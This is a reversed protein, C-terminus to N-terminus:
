LPNDPHPSFWDYWNKKFNLSSSTIQGDIQSERVRNCTPINQLAWLEAASNGRLAQKREESGCLASVIDTVFDAGDHLMSAWM